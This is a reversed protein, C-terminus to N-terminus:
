TPVVELRRGCRDCLVSNPDTDGYTMMMSWRHGDTVCKYRHVRAIEEDTPARDLDTM